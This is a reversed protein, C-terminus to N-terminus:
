IRKGPFGKLTLLLLVQLGMWMCLDPVKNSVVRGVDELYPNWFSFLNTSDPVHTEVFGSEIIWSIVLLLKMNFFCCWLKLERGVNIAVWFRLIMFSDPCLRVTLWFRWM